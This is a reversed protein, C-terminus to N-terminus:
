VVGDSQREAVPLSFFFTSGKGEQSVVWVKGNHAEVIRQVISLGLGAGGFRHKISRDGQYFREFIHPLRDAPIGIGEDIVSTVLRKSAKDYVMRVTIVGGDPSFKAANGLLNDLVQNLRGRDGRVVYPEGPLESEFVLGRSQFVLRAGDLAQEALPVIEVDSLELTDPRIAELSLIDQILRGISEAKQDIIALAEVQESAVPGLEGDHLLGAYGRVLALPSRLEHALNQVLENRLEHLAELEKNAEALEAARQRTEDLLRVTEIAAAIQSGAITLVREHDMTFAHPTSGDIGLTGITRDQITLPVSLLSRINPDIFRFHPDAYTDPVYIVEGTAVVQGAVYEGYKFRSQELYRQELGAAARLVVEDTEPEYLGVSASHCQYIDRITEVVMQLIDDLSQSASVRRAMDQLVSVEHLRSRLTVYYRANELATAAQYCLLELTRITARRFYHPESHLLALVGLQQDGRRIPYAAVAQVLWVMDFEAQLEPQDALNHIVVPENTRQVQRILTDPAPTDSSEIRAPKGVAAPHGTWQKADWPSQRSLFLRVQGPEFLEIVARITQEAVTDPDQVSVLRTSMEHLTELTALQTAAEDYLQANRIATGVSGAITELMAIDDPSYAHPQYSQVSLVGVADDQVILPMMLLSSPMEGQVIVQEPVRQQQSDHVILPQRTRLVLGTLGADAPQIEDPIRLGQEYSGVLRLLEMEKDYLGIFFSSTDMLSGIKRYVVELVDNLDLRSIAVSIENLAQYREARRTETEFQRAKYLVAAVQTALAHALEADSPTFVHPEPDDLNLEGLFEGNHILPAGLWSRIPRHNPLSVWRSDTDTDHIILPKGTERIIRTTEFEPLHEHILSRYQSIEKKHLRMVRINVDDFLMFITITSCPILRDVEHLVINFVEDMDLTGSVATLISYIAALRDQIYDIVHHMVLFEDRGPLRWLTVRVRVRHEQAGIITLVMEDSQRDPEDLLAQWREALKPADEPAVFRAANRGVIDSLEYGYFHAAAPTAFRIIGDANVLVVAEPHESPAGSSVWPM